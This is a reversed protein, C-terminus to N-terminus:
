KLVKLNAYSLLLTRRGASDFKVTARANVDSGVLEEITGKGFHDHHVWMGVKLGSSKDDFTGLATELIETESQEGYLEPPIEDLFRSGNRSVFEGFHNRVVARTLVLRERARTIGVYMLRREEEVGDESQMANVHPLLEDELGAIFVVPFELGKAAHLTMLAVQGDENDYGDVESVLSVEQLFGRLGDKPFEKDWSEASAVLEEVNEARSLAEPEGNDLHKWYNVDEIVQRLADSAGLNLLPQWAELQEAFSALSNKARGRITALAEKSSCARSLPVRRDRAWASLKEVSKAGIGRPPVNLIRACAVDASPNAILQLYSVLDRIEKRKYFEVGGVIQYPVGAFRLGRELARQMFNVRYLIAVDGFSYGMGKFDHIMGGISDGEDNEDGCELVMIDEGDEGETFLDKEKREANNAIVAQAARLIKKTSRYNQELKVVKAGPWDREFDMINRIDAGRWAYISQDPDGCVALNGHHGAIHRTLRYQIRNTDQYEDVLVFRFRQAYQDRVGPHQEFIELTRILLDDFDLANNRRMTEDYIRRTRVLVEDEYGQIQGDDYHQGAEAWATNKWESIWGAVMGPRFRKTDYNLDKLITKVLQNKDSTDYITFDRTFGPLVGIDRRLIRACMSHFTSIWLGKEPVLGEVRERMEKAAKNTFTIALIEHPRAAGTRVLHAIRHTIVRTKGSGAGALILLPGEVWQTAEAQAPNLGDLLVEVSAPEVSGSFVESSAPTQPGVDWISPEAMERNEQTASEEYAGYPNTPVRSEPESHAAAEPAPECDDWLFGSTGNAPLDGSGAEDKGTSSDSATM